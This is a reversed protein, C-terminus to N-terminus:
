TRETTALQRRDAFHQQMQPSSMRSTGQHENMNIPIQSKVPMYVMHRGFYSLTDEAESFQAVKKMM